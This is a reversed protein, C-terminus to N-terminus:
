LKFPTLLADFKLKAAGLVDKVVKLFLSIEDILGDLILLFVKCLVLLEEHWDHDFILCSLDALLFDFFHFSELESDVVLLEENALHRSEM